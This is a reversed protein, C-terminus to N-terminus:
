NGMKLGGSVKPLPGTPKKKKPEGAPIEKGKRKRSSKEAAPVESAEPQAEDDPLPPNSM